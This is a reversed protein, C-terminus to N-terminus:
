AQDVHTQGRRTPRRNRCTSNFVLPSGESHYKRLLKGGSKTPLTRCSDRGGAVPTARPAVVTGPAARARRASGQRRAPRGKNACVACAKSPEEGNPARRVLSAQRRRDTRGALGASRCRVVVFRRLVASPARSYYGHVLM